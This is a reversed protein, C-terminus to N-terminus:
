SGFSFRTTYNIPTHLCDHAPRTFFGGKEKTSFAEIVRFCVGEVVFEM